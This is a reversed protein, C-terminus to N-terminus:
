EWDERYAADIGADWRNCWWNMGVFSLLGLTIGFLTALM